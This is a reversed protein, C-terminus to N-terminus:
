AIGRYLMAIGLTLLLVAVATRFTREPLRRLLVTGAWTGIVVGPTALAILGLQKALASHHVALYVPMRALDVALAIATATAIFADRTLQFHLLAATRIGGQNGVLGGFMGSAAGAMWAGTTGLRVRRTLGSLESLGALLLLGGFILELAPDGLRSQLLAGALGGAASALGFGALVRRDVHLRLRLFRLLTGVFHPFAVAAVAVSTPMRLALVPTLLSGIGFGAVAAVGGAFFSVILVALEFM